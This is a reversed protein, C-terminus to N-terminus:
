AILSAARAAVGPALTIGLRYHGTAHFLGDCRPSWGFLPKEDPTVPRLGSWQHLVERGELWPAMRFAAESIVERAQETCDDELGKAELTSGAVILGDERPILYHGGQLCISQLEGPSAQFALMQGKAGDIECLADLQSSWAGAALVVAGSPFSQNACVVGRVREDGIFHDVSHGELLRGGSRTFAQALAALLRPSRVQAIQPLHLTGPNGAADADAIQLKLACRSAFLQWPAVDAVQRVELGSTLYEPDVGSRDKLERCWEAYKSLSDILLPWLVEEDLADPQLPSLIGGGAWSAGGRGIRNRELLSVRMGSKLLDLATALGIVGGGIVIVDPSSQTRLM